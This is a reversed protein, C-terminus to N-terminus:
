QVTVQFSYNHHVTTTGTTGATDITLIATGLPTGSLPAGNNSISSGSSCGLNATLALALCLLLLTPLRRRGRGPLLLCLLTALSAAAVPVAPDRVLSASQSSIAKAATTTVTLTSNGGGTISSPSFSCGIGTGAPPNCSLNITGVFNGLSGVIVTATGGQGPTLSLSAPAFTISYDSLGLTISASTMAGFNGDGSYVAYITQAGAPLGTTTFTAVAAGPGAYGLGITALVSPTSGALYFTVSGTPVVGSSTAGTVRATLTIAQGAVGTTSSASLTIAAASAISTIQLPPSSTSPAYVTNGSYVATVNHTANGTLTVAASAVYNGNVLTVPATTLLSTGDLFSVTGSISNAAIAAAAASVTATLTVSGGPAQSAASSVLTTSSPTTGTGTTPPPTGTAATSTVTIPAPINCIFDNNPVCAVQVQYTGAAPAYLTVQGTANVGGSNVTFVGPYTYGALTATFAANAPVPANIASAFQVTLTQTSGQTFQTYSIQPTITASFATVSLAFSTSNTSAAYNSDGSYTVVLPLTGVSLPTVTVNVNGNGFYSSTVPTQSGLTVSVTGSPAAGNVQGGTTPAVAIVLTSSQGYQLTGPYPTLTISTPDLGSTATQAPSTQTNYNGDGAYVATISHSTGDALPASATTAPLTISAVQTGGDLIRVTGTPAIGTVGTVSVTYTISAGSVPTTTSLGLTVTPTVKPVNVTATQPTSCTFSADGTCTATVALTGAQSATFTATAFTTGNSGSLTETQNPAGTLATTVSGTPTGVGSISSVTATISVQGGLTATAPASISFFAAEPGVYISTTGTQPAFTADGSYTATIPYTGGPLQFTPSVGANDANLQVTTTTFGPQTSTYTISGTPTGGATPYVTATLVFGVGHDPNYSTSTIYVNSGATGTARPFVKALTTLDVLGLGTAPEWTGGPAADPQTYLNPTTALQYLIPNINGQRASSRQLEISSLAQTFATLSSATLDPGHRLSDAPLGPASQWAPRPTLPTSADEAAGPAALLTVDALDPPLAGSAPTRTLVTTIGQAAAQQFLLAYAARRSPSLTGTAQTADLSLIPAANQDILGSLSALSLAAPQGNVLTAPTASATVASTPLNDLGAVDTILAAASSPLSPQTANAYFLAGNLQYTHLSVAFATQIISSPASVTLRTGAPSVADVSLGQSQAWATAAALQDATAGYSAAFQSPTLWHHYSPDTLTTVNTLFHQLAAARDPPQALTLTLTLRQSSPIPGADMVPNAASALAEPTGTVLTTRAPSQGSLSVVCLLTAALTAAITRSRVAAVRLLAVLTSNM